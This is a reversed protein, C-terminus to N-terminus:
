VAVVSAHTHASPKPRTPGQCSQPFSISRLESAGVVLDSLVLKSLDDALRCLADHFWDFCGNLGCGNKALPDGPFGRYYRVNYPVMLINLGLDFAALPKGTPQRGQVRSTFRTGNKVTKAHTMGRLELFHQLSVRSNAVAHNRTLIGFFWARFSM